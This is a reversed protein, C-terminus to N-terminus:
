TLQKAGSNLLLALLCAGAGISSWRFVADDRWADPVAGILRRLVSSTRALAPKM